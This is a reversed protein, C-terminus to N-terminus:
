ATEGEQNTGRAAIHDIRGLDAPSIRIIDLEAFWRVWVPEIGPTQAFEVDTLRGCAYLTTRIALRQMDDPTLWRVNRTERDSAALDGTVTARYLQWQHGVGRPGPARRCRNDRWGGVPLLELTAVTLGLEESVEAHAAETYGPHDDFVHGAAPACGAPATNRDFMLHRGASDIVLIGVSANDCTKM